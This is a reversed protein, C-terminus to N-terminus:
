PAPDNEKPYFTFLGLGARQLLDRAVLMNSHAM